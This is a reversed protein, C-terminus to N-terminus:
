SNAAAADTMLAREFTRMRRRFSDSRTCMTRRFSPPDRFEQICPVGLRAALYRAASNASFPPGSAAVLRVDVLDDAVRSPLQRAWRELTDPVTLHRQIRRVVPIAELMRVMGMGDAGVRVFDDGRAPTPVSPAEIWEHPITVFTPAYGFDPLHRRLAEIRRTGSSQMPPFRATVYAIETVTMTEECGLRARLAPWASGSQGAVVHVYGSRGHFFAGFVSYGWASGAVFGIPDAVTRALDLM